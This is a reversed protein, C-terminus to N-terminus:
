LRPYSTSSDDYIEQLGCAFSPMSHQGFADGGTLNYRVEVIKPNEDAVPYIMKMLLRLYALIEGHEYIRYISVGLKNEDREESGYYGTVSSSNYAYVKKIYKSLYASQQALGGGLSHGTAVIEVNEGRALFHGRIHEILPPILKKNQDYQDWTLPIFNTVWHLNSFWDGMEADSGRFAIVVLPRIHKEKGKWEWVAYGFGGINLNWEPSLMDLKLDDRKEWNNLGNGKKCVVKKEEYAQVSLLAYEHLNKLDGMTERQRVIDGQAIERVPIEIASSDRLVVTGTKQSSACGAFLMLCLAVSLGFRVSGILNM